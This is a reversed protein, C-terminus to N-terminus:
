GRKNNCRMSRKNERFLIDVSLAKENTFKSSILIELFYTSSFIILIKIDHTM